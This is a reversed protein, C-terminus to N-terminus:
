PPCCVFEVTPLVFEFLVIGDPPTAVGPVLGLVAVVPMPVVDPVVGLLVEETPAVPDIFVM